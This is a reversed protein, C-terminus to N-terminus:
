YGLLKLTVWLIACLLMVTLLALIVNVLIYTLWDAPSNFRKDYGHRSM